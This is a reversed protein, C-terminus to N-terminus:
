DFVYLWAVRLKLFGTMMCTITKIVVLSRIFLFICYFTTGYRGLKKEEIDVELTDWTITGIAFLSNYLFSM